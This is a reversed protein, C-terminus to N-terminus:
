DTTIYRITITAADAGSLTEATGRIYAFTGTGGTVADTTDDSSDEAGATTIEGHPLKIAGTCQTIETAESTGAVITCVQTLQGVINGHARVPGGDIFEDGIGPDNEDKGVFHSSGEAYRGTFVLIHVLEHTSASGTGPAIIITTALAAAAGFATLSGTSKKM